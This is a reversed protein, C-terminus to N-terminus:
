GYTGSHLHSHPMRRIPSKQTAFLARKHYPEKKYTSHSSYLEKTHCIPSKQLIARKYCPKKTRCIHCLYPEKAVFLARKHSSYPEKTDTSKQMGVPSKRTRCILSKQAVFLARKHSSYPEKTNTGVPSKRTRCILGKQTQALRQTGTYPRTPMGAPRKQEITDTVPSKQLGDPKKRKHLLGRECGLLIHICIYIQIYICIYACIYICISMYISLYMCTHIYM